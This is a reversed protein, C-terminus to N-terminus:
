KWKCNMTATVKAHAPSDDITITTNATSATSVNGAADKAWAYFTNAGAAGTATSPASGSWSCGASSNITTICYGTVGVADTATFSSVPVTLSYSTAPMTFATITPATTDGGSYIGTATMTPTNGLFNWIYDTLPTSSTAALAAFGRNGGPGIASYAAMKAGWMQENAFPWLQTSTTTNWGTDGYFTGTGGIQYLITAGVNATALTSGSEMRPLYKLGATDLTALTAASSQTTYGSSPPTGISGGTHLYVYDPTTDHLNSGGLFTSGGSSTYYLNQTLNFTFSYNHGIDYKRSSDVLFTNAGITNNSATITFPADYDQSTIMGRDNAWCINNQLTAATKGMESWYCDIKTNNLVINGYFADSTDSGSSGGGTAMGHFEASNANWNGDIIICNQMTNTNSYYFRLGATMFDAPTSDIRVVVRRFITHDTPTHTNDPATSSTYFGYRGYGWVWSDELLGYSSGGMIYAIPLEDADAPSMGDEFGCNSIWTHDGYWGFVGGAGRRFHIGDFHIYNVKTTRNINAAVMNNYQGDIIAQGVHEARITTFNGASGSPPWTQPSAYDGILNSTGTYTGDRLILTDGSSMLNIGSIIYKKPSSSSGTGSDNAANPDVYYTAGYASLPFLLLAILLYKM